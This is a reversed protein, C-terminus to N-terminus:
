LYGDRLAETLWPKGGFKDWWAPYAFGFHRASTGITAFLGQSDNQIEYRIGSQLDGTQIGIIPGSANQSALATVQEARRRLDLGVPGNESELLFALAPGNLTVSM